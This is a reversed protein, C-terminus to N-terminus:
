VEKKEYVLYNQIIRVDEELLEETKQSWYMARHKSYMNKEIKTIVSLRSLAILYSDIAHYHSFNIKNVKRSTIRGATIKEELFSYIRQTSFKEHVRLESLYLAIWGQWVFVPSTFLYNEKLPLFAYSPLYAISTLNRRYIEQNLHGTEKTKYRSSYLRYHKMKNIWVKQQQKTFSSSTFLDFILANQLPIKKVNTVVTRNTFPIIHQLLIFAKQTSCYSIISPALTSEHYRACAWHSATLTFSAANIRKIAKAGIIWIDEIDANYFTTMRKNMVKGDIAACQYEIAYSKGGVSVLLDPRQKLEKLYPELLVHDLDKQSQLWEYLDVKGIRHYESEAESKMASCGVTKKHAFHSTIITGIKLDLETTCTPCYFVSQKRLQELKQSTWKRDALNVQKGNQDYAVFM